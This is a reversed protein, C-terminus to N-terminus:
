IPDKTWLTVYPQTMGRRTATRNDMKQFPGPSQGAGNTQGQVLDGGDEPISGANTVKPETDKRRFTRTLKGTDMFLGSPGYPHDPNQRPPLSAVEPNEEWLSGACSGTRELIEVENRATETTELTCIKCNKQEM